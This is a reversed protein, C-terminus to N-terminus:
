PGSPLILHAEESDGMELGDPFYEKWRRTVRLAIDPDCTLEQPFSEKLRADIVIPASYSIHNRELSTKAAHIDGGPEFRTFTTWLFNVTSAVSRRPEDSLIILPWDQFAPDQAVRSGFKPDESYSPGGVVLCGPSFVHVERLGQMIETSRFTTPLKRVPDGLGLWVGKSGENIVPGSYDLSDMSLNSFIYLDRETRTRELIHTLTARFDKLDINSDTVLLFKTLSLQGEGLIRFASAM